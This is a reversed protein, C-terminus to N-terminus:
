EKQCGVTAIIVMRRPHNSDFLLLGNRDTEKVFIDTRLKNGDKYVLTDLFQIQTTSYTLTFQLEPYIQNLDTQINNLEESSGEWLLFIDDIYRWWARVHRWLISKYVFRDEQVAMYINAYTPAVNSGMATGGLQLFFDDGFLFFYFFFTFFEMLRACEPAVDSGSLVCSVVELGKDHEISTYLSVVDFSALITTEYVTLDDIKELFYNTDRIYSMASTAYPRLVRDLFIATKNLLSGRGTVILRGPPNTLDKHIKPLVYLVPSVPGEVILYESLKHDILGMPLSDSVVLQLERQFCLTPNCSLKEYLLGDDLQRLIEARYKSSDMVVVAGSKDAPKITILTKEALANLTKREISTLNQATVPRFINKMKEIDRQVLEIYSEVFHNRNPPQFNSKNYLGVERLTFGKTVNGGDANLSDAKDSFYSSLRLRWFYGQLDGEMGFWDPNNSPCFSLGKSLVKVEVDSLVVSSINVVLEKSNTLQREYKKDENHYETRSM